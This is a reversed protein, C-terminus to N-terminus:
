RTHVAAVAATLLAQLGSYVRASNTRPTRLTLSLSDSIVFGAAAHVGRHEAVAFVAAAEMDVTLIGQARYHTIEPLTERYPTDISWTPGTRHPTRGTALASELTSTLVPSPYAFTGPPLYHHSVGEDRLAQECVVIDALAMDPQLTGATGVTIIQNLGLAILQETVLAAAGAGIGFGGCVAVRRGTNELLHLEGAVPGRLLYTPSHATLHRLLSGQYILVAGHLHNLPLPGYRDAVYAAHEAPKVLAPFAHKGPLNPYRGTNVTNM